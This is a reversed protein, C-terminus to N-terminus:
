LMRINKWLTGSLLRQINSILLKMVHSVTNLMKKHCALREYIWKVENEFLFLSSKKTNVLKRIVYWQTYTKSVEAKLKLFIFMFKKKETTTEVLPINKYM